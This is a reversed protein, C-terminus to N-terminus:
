NAIKKRGSPKKEIITLTRKYYQTIKLAESKIFTTMRTIFAIILLNLTRNRVTCIRYM